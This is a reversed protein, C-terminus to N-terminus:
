KCRVLWPGTGEEMRMTAPLAADHVIISLVRRLTSGTVVTVGLWCEKFRERQNLEL